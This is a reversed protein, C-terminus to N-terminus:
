GKKNSNRLSRFAELKEKYEEIDKRYFLYLKRSSDKNFMYLPVIKNEKILKSVNSTDMGLFEAVDKQSMVYEYLESVIKQKIVSDKMGFM